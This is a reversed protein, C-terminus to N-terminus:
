HVKFVIPIHKIKMIIMVQRLNNNPSNIHVHICTHQCELSTCYSTNQPLKCVTYTKQEINRLLKTNKAERRQKCWRAITSPRCICKVNDFQYVTSIFEKLLLLSVHFLQCIKLLLSDKHQLRKLLNCHTEIPLQTHEIHPAPIPFHHSLKGGVLLTAQNWNRGPAM